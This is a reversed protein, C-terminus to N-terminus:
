LVIRTKKLCDLMIHVEKVQCSHCLVLNLDHSSCYHYVAKPYKETILAACGKIRGAMNGAGDMTQSRCKILDLGVESISEIIKDAIAAGSILECAVFELLREVPKSEDTYRLVIGLQEWNSVDTVEDCQFGFYPGITQSRVKDVIKKQIFAKICYLLENQSTKSIYTATKTCTSLHEQLVEDGADVRFKLSEKFNGKNLSSSTEDDRHSRLAIGQRGCFIL